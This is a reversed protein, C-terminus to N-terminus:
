RQVLEIHLGCETKQLGAWRADRPDVGDPARSTCPACGVSTYGQDDLPHPPIDFDLVFDDIMEDTWELMPHFRRSRGPGDMHMDFTNRNANQSRRVGSVWVDCESAEAEMPATKNLYCCYDPDDVFLLNGSPSRQAVKTVPSRLSRVDLDFMTAISDRYSLTEPFHFGTDLFYVPIRGAGAAIALMPISHTQFSSSAIVRKGKGIQDCLHDLAARAERSYSRDDPLM